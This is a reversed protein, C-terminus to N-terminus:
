LLESSNEQMVEDLIEDSINASAPLVNFEIKYKESDLNVSIKNSGLYLAM